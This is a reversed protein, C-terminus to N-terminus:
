IYNIPPAFNIYQNVDVFEFIQWQDKEKYLLIDRTLKLGNSNINVRVRAENDNVWVSEINTLVVRENTIGNSMGRVLLSVEKEGMSIGEGNLTPKRESKNQIEKAKRKEFCQEPTEYLCEYYVNPSVTILNAKDKQEIQFFQKVTQSPTSKNEKQEVIQSPASEIENKSFESKSDSCSISFLFISFVFVLSFTKNINM